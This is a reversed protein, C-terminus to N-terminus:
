DRNRHEETLVMLVSSMATDCYCRARVADRPIFEIISYEFCIFLERNIGVDCGNSNRLLRFGIGKLRRRRQGHLGIFHWHVSPSPKGLISFAQDWPMKVESKVFRVQGHQRVRPGAPYM